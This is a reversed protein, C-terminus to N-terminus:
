VAKHAKRGQFCPTSYGCDLREQLAFLMYMPYFALAAVMLWYAKALIFKMPKMEPAQHRLQTPGIHPRPCTFILPVQVLSRLPSPEFSNDSTM